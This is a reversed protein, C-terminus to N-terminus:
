MCTKKKGLFLIQYGQKVNLLLQKPPCNAHQCCFFSEPKTPLSAKKFVYESPFNNINKKKSLSAHILWQLVMIKLLYYHSRKKLQKKTFVIARHMDLTWESWHIAEEHCYKEATKHYWGNDTQTRETLVDEGHDLFREKERTLERQQTHIYVCM